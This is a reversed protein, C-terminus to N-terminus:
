EDADMAPQEATMRALATALWDGYPGALTRVLLARFAAHHLDGNSTALIPRCPAAVPPDTALTTLSSM